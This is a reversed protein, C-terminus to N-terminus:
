SKQIHICKRQNILYILLHLLSIMQFIIQFIKFIQVTRIVIYNKQDATIISTRYTFFYSIVTDFLFLVYIFYINEKIDPMESILNPIFPVLILGIILILMGILFYAKKYFNLLLKIKNEDNKALPKYLNFM